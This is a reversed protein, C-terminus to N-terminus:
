SVSSCREAVLRWITPSTTSVANGAIAARWAGRSDGATGFAPVLPRHALRGAERVAALAADVPVAFALAFRQQQEGTEATRRVPTVPTPDPPLDGIGPTPEPGAPASASAGCAGLALVSFCFSRRTFSM